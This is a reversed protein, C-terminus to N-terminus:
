KKVLIKELEQITNVIGILNNLKLKKFDQEKHIGWTVAFTDINLVAADKIDGISDTIFLVKEPKIEKEYFINKFKEIKNLGSEKGYIAIFCDNIGFRELPNLINDIKSSSNIVLNYNTKLKKILEPIGTFLNGKNKVTSENSHNPEGYLDKIRKVGDWFDDEFIKLFDSEKLNPYKMYMDKKVLSLSDYLVGDFDFIITDKNSINDM